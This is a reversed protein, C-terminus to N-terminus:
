HKGGDHGKSAMERKMVWGKAQAQVTAPVNRDRALEKIDKEQLTPLFKLATPLPVKPNRVLAARLAYVKLFDGGSTSTGSCRAGATKSNALSLIEGDTIRPSPVAALSVLRNADRLLLMRAERNGLTALKIKQSVSMKLVRQTMTLRKEERSRRPPPASGGREEVDHALEARYEVLLTEASDESSHAHPRYRPNPPAGRRAAPVDLLVLGNRVCFDCAGDVTSAPARPNRCLGRIIDDHACSGSSTRASSRWSRRLVV